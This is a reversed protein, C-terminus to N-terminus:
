TNGTTPLESLRKKMLLTERGDKLCLAVSGTEPWNLVKVVGHRDHRM